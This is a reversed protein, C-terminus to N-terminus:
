DLLSIEFNSNLFLNNSPTVNNLTVGPTLLLNNPPTINNLIEGSTVKFQSNKISTVFKKKLPLFHLPATQIKFWM